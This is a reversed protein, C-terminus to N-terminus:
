QLVRCCVAVCQLVSCCVAGYPVLVCSDRWVRQILCTVSTFPASPARILRTVYMFSDHWMCSHTVDYMHILCTVRSLTCLACSNLNEREWMCERECVCARERERARESARESARQRARKRYRLRQVQRALPASPARIQVRRIPEHLIHNKMGRRIDVISVGFRGSARYSSHTMDCVHIPCTVCIFWTHWM